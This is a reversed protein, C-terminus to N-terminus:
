IRIGTGRTAGIAIQVAPHVPDDSSPLWEAESLESRAIREYTFWQKTKRVDRILLVPVGLVIPYSHGSACRLEENALSVSQQDVPCVLQDLLTPQINMAFSPPDIM